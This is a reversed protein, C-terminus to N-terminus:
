SPVQPADAFRELQAMLLARVDVRARLRSCLLFMGELKRHLFVTDVPPPRFFGREFAIELILERIRRLADSRGFDYRGRHRFPEFGILFLELFLRVREAPDGARLFGVQELGAQLAVRDTDAIARLVRAYQTALAEPVDRTGGFDLLALQGTAAVYVYNAFNPDSQMFRFDFLERLVLEYLLAGIRDRLSQPYPGLSVEDLSVGEIFDMALIRPGSLDPYVRPVVFDAHDALLMRYRSQLAAEVRYDTERRLQRKAETVLGSLDAKDPLLRALRLMSAVNEVDSDISRAVGPYQVKIALRRGDAATARHVQGISAAAVPSTDFDRFRKEWDAGYARALTRRLQAQPMADGEARLISLAKTVESPLLDAGALSLMQGLKMAAGRLRTLAKALRQADIERLVLSRAARVGTVQRLGDALASAALEGALWGVRALRELRSAPVRSQRLRKGAGRAPAAALGGGKPEIRKDPKMVRIGIRELDFAM